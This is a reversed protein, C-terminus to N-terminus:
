RQEAQGGQQRHRRRGPPSFVSSPKRVDSVADLLIEVIVQVCKWLYWDYCSGYYFYLPPGEHKDKLLRSAMYIALAKRLREYVYMCCGRLRRLRRVCVCVCVRRARPQRTEKKREKKRKKNLTKGHITLTTGTVIQEKKVTM